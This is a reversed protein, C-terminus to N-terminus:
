NKKRPAQAKCIDLFALSRAMPVRVPKDHHRVVVLREFPKFVKWIMQVYLDSGVVVCSERDSSLSRAAECTPTYTLCSLRTALLHEVAMGADRRDCMANQLSTGYASPPMDCVM